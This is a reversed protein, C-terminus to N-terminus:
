SILKGDETVLVTTQSPLEGHSTLKSMASLFGSLQNDLGENQHIDSNLLEYHQDLAAKFATLFSNRRRETEEVQSIITALWEETKVRIGESRNRAELFYREAEQRGQERIAQAEEHAKARIKEIEGERSNLTDIEENLTRIEEILEKERRQVKEWCRSVSDLFEVVQPASYGLPVRKFEKNKVDSPTLSESLTEFTKRGM